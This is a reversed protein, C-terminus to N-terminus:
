PWWRAVDSIARAVEGLETPANQGALAHLLPVLSRFDALLHQRTRAALVPLTPTWMTSLDRLPLAALRPALGALASSRDGEDEISRAADLAERLLEAPFHPALAALAWSRGGADGITRAADLAERLVAPRERDPLLHPALAALACSRAEEDGISRAVDLAERLVAPREREPLQPALAALACSRAWENGISRAVDLVRSLLKAPLHPAM